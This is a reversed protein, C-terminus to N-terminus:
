SYGYLYDHKMMKYEVKGIKGFCFYKKKQVSCMYQWLWDSVNLFSMKWIAKHNCIHKYIIYRTHPYFWLIYNQVKCIQATLRSFDLHMSVVVILCRYDLCIIWKCNRRPWNNMWEQIDHIRSIDVNMSINIFFVTQVYHFWYYM